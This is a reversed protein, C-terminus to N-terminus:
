QQQCDLTWRAQATSYTGHDCGKTFANSLELPLEDCIFQITLELADKSPTSSVGDLNHCVACFWSIM